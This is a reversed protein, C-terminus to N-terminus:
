RRQCGDAANLSVLYSFFLIAPSRRFALPSSSSSPKWPIRIEARIMSNFFVDFCHGQLIRPVRKQSVAAHHVLVEAVPWDVLHPERRVAEIDKEPGDPLRREDVIGDAAGDHEGRQEDIFPLDPRPTEETPADGCYCFQHPCGSDAVVPVVFTVATRAHTRATGEM